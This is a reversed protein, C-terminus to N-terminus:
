VLECPLYFLLEWSGYSISHQICLQRVGIMQYRKHMQRYFLLVKFLMRIVKSIVVCCGTSNDVLFLNGSYDNITWFNQFTITKCSMLQCCM